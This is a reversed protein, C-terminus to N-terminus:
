TLMRGLIDFTDLNKILYKKMNFIALYPTVSEWLTKWIRCILDTNNRERCIVSTNNEDGYPLSYQDWDIRLKKLFNDIKRDAFYM